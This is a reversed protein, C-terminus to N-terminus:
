GDRNWDVAPYPRRWHARAAVIVLAVFLFESAVLLLLTEPGLNLANAAGVIGVNLALMTAGLVAVVVAGFLAQPIAIGGRRLWRDLAILGGVSAGLIHLGVLAGTALTFLVSEPFPPSFYPNRFSVIVFSPGALALGPGLLYLVRFASAWYQAAAIRSTPCSALSLEELAGARRWADMRRAAGVVVHIPVIAAGYLFAGLLLPMTAGLFFSAAYLVVWVVWVVLWKLWLREGARGPAAFFLALRPTTLEDRGVRSLEGSRFWRAVEWAWALWRGVIRRGRRSGAIVVALLFFLLESPLLGATAGHRNPLESLTWANLCAMGCQAAFAAGWGAAVIAFTGRRRRLPRSMAALALWCVAAVRAWAAIGLAGVFNFLQPRSMTEAFFPADREAQVFAFAGLLMGPAFFLAVRLFASLGTAAAWHAPSRRARRRSRSQPDLWAAAASRAVLIAFLFPAGWAAFYVLAAFSLRGVRGQTGCIAFLLLWFACTAAAASLVAGRGKGAGALRLAFEAQGPEAARTISEWAEVGDRRLLAFWAVRKRLLARVSHLTALCLVVAAAVAGMAAAIGYDWWGYTQFVTFRPTYYRSGYGSGLSFASALSAWLFAAPISLAAALMQGALVGMIPRAGLLFPQREELRPHETVLFAQAGACAALYWAVGGVLASLAKLLEGGASWPAYFPAVFFVHFTAAFAVLPFLLAVHRITAGWLFVAYYDREAYRTMRAEDIRGDRWALSFLASGRWAAFFPLLGCGLFLALAPAGELAPRTAAFGAAYVGLLAGAITGAVTLRRWRARDGGRILFRALRRLSPEDGDVRRNAQASAWPPRDLISRKTQAVGTTAM